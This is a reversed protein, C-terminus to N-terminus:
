QLESTHEESRAELDVGLEFEININSTGVSSLSTINKIGAIGNISKELPETIQSEIIDANAGSYSTRVNVNPPDIAPYDRIGLFKYGILGFLVIMINMVFALIPRRLSLESINM